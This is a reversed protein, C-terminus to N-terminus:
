LFDRCIYYSQRLVHMPYVSTSRGRVKERCLVTFLDLTQTYCSVIVIRDTTSARLQVLMRSLLEFKGSMEACASRERHFSDPFYQASLLCVCSLALLM